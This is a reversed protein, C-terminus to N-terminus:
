AESTGVSGNSVVVYWAEPSAGCALRHVGARLQPWDSCGILWIVWLDILDVNSGCHLKCDYLEKNVDQQTKGNAIMM